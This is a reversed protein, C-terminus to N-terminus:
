WCGDEFGGVFAALDQVDCHRSYVLALELDVRDDSCAYLVVSLYAKRSRVRGM